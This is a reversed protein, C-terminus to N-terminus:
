MAAKKATTIKPIVTVLEVEDPGITYGLFTQAVRAFREIGDTAMFQISQKSTSTRLLQQSQLISIVQKALTHAPDIVPLTGLAKQIAGKLVPFHTCGLLVCAPETEGLYSFLPALLKKIIEEVLHGECWGEEALAVLLQCPWEVVVRSPAMENIVERYAHWRCTGETALVVIPNTSPAELSAIAGPTIVGIVPLPFFKEQLAELAVATATNCAVVLAKVGTAVLIENANLAYDRVTQPSKTGYPLRATDGLYLFHEHPMAEQLARLVTLGGVGSDFVGIPLEKNANLSM